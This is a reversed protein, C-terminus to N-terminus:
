DGDGHCDHCATPGEGYSRLLDHCSTCTGGQAALQGHPFSGHSWDSGAPGRDGGPGFHCESCGVQALGGALDQGHCQRCADLDRTAETGHFTASAPDLWSRGVPHGAGGHCDHCSNPGPGNARYTEHCGNCTDQYALLSAHPVSGHSWNVGPPVRGGSSTFHCSRCGPITGAGGLDAGHCATCVATGQSAAVQGHFTAANLDAPNSWAPAHVRESGGSGFNSSGGNSCGSSFLALGACLTLTFLRALLRFPM